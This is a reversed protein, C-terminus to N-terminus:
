IKYRILVIGSGGDGGRYGGEDYVGGGGGGGTGNIANMGTTNPDSQRGDGGGGLGGFGINGNWGGGFYGAGGGGGAFVGNEGFSTGFKDSYDLGDGGDGSSNNTSDDGGQGAGGGGAAAANGTFNRGGDNGFGGDTSNPQLGIGFESSSDFRAGGGGSGGDVVSSGASTVASGTGGGLATLGFATSDDGPDSYSSNNGAGVSGDGGDGVDITFSGVGVTEASFILGGAGGGGGGNTTGAGGGAVILVDVEGDTTGTSVVEFTSTGTSEFAHIRYEEGGITVDSVTGGTASIPINSIPEWVTGNYYEVAGIDSNYRVMGATPSSPREAETGAPLGLFGTDNITTNKLNAM